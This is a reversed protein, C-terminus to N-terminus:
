IKRRYVMARDANEFGLSRYFAENEPDNRLMYTVRENLSLIRSVLGKGIGQNRYKSDVVVNNIQGNFVHDTTCRAFGIMRDNDWATVVIQSNEVMQKLREIDNTKDQLGVENFLEILRTFDV